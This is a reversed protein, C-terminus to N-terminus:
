HGPLMGRQVIVTMPADFMCCRVETLLADALQLAHPALADAGNEALGSVALASAKKRGWQQSQLGAGGTSVTFPVKLTGCM